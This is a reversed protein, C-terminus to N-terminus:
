PLLHKGTMQRRQSRKLRSLRRRQLKRPEVGSAARPTFLASKQRDGGDFDGDVLFAIRLLVHPPQSGIRYQGGSLERDDFSARVEILLHRELIWAAALRFLFWLSRRQGCIRDLRSRVLRLVSSLQRRRRLNRSRKGPRPLEYPSVEM